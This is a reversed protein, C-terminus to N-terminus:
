GFEGDRENELLGRGTSDPDGGPPKLATGRHSYSLLCLV